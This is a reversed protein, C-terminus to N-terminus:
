IKVRRIIPTYAIKLKIHILGTSVQELFRTEVRVLEGTDELEVEVM